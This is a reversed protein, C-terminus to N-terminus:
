EFSCILNKLISRVNMMTMMDLQKVKYRPEIVKDPLMLKHDKFLTKLDKIL